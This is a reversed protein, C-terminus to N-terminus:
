SGFLSLCKLNVKSKLIIKNLGTSMLQKMKSMKKCEFERASDHTYGCQVEIIIILSLQKKLYYSLQDSLHAAISLNVAALNQM